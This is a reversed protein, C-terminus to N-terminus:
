QGEARGERESKRSGLFRARKEKEKERSCALWGTLMM